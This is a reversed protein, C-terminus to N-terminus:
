LRSMWCLIDQFSSLGKAQLSRTPSSVPFSATPQHGLLSARAPSLTHRSNFSIILRHQDWERNSSSIFVTGHSSHKKKGWYNWHGKREEAKLYPESIQHKTIPLLKSFCAAEKSIKGKPSKLAIFCKLHFNDVRASGASHRPVAWAKAQPKPQCLMLQEKSCLLM